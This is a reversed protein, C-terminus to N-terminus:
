DVCTPAPELGTKPMPIEDDVNKALGVAKLTRILWFTPDLEWWRHGARACHPYAHHNNHWGEGYTLLAVWWLNRSDDTTQYTKYGWLHTASNVFWTGHYAFTMRACLGWLLLPWGGLAWLVGGFAFLLPGYFRHLFRLVPDRVLDPIYRRFITEDEEASRNAFLWFMHSWWKGDRPSHPDGPMDSKAHHIRHTAAWILPSGQGSLAGCIYAFVEVPRALKFSKHTIGRHYSLGIGISITLYHLVITAAFAQWTFFFPAALCGVHMLTMWGLVAWDVNRYTLRKPLFWETIEDDIRRAALEQPAQRTVETPPAVIPKKRKPSELTTTTM